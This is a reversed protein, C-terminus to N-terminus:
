KLYTTHLADLYVGFGSPSAWEQAPEVATGEGWENFTTILQWPEGSSVQAEINLSWAKPDRALRVAQGKLWFGPSITFSYGKLDNTATAPAYQHWSDPQNSCKKYGPFIKLDIYAPHGLNDDATVWRDAMNCSDNPDNYVFVVFRGDVRLFSPDNGYHSQIYTLDSQIQEVTPDSNGENEYYLAWRFSPNSSVPTAALIASIRQDTQSGPGWWSLIAADIHAYTMAQIQSDIINISSSDYFGWAPTYNTFPNFGQQNWAEPFWPYLFTARIPFNPESAPVVPSTPTVASILALPVPTSSPTAQPAPACAVLVLLLVLSFRRILTM